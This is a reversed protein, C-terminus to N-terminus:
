FHKCSRPLSCGLALATSTCPLPRNPNRHPKRVSLLGPTGLRQICIWVLWWCKVTCVITRALQWMENRTNEKKKGSCTDQNLECLDLIFWLFYCGLPTRELLCTNYLLLYEPIKNGPYLVYKFSKLEHLNKKQGMHRIASSPKTSVLSAAFTPHFNVSSRLYSWSRILSSGKLNEWNERPHEM